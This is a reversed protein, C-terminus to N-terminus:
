KFNISLPMSDIRFECIPSMVFYFTDTTWTIAMQRSEAPSRRSQSGTLSGFM